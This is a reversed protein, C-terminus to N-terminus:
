SRGALCCSFLLSSVERTIQPSPKYRSSCSHRNTQMPAVSMDLRSKGLPALVAPAIIADCAVGRSGAILVVEVALGGCCDWGIRCYLDYKVEGEVDVTYM